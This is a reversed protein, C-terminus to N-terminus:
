FVPVYEFLLYSALASISPTLIWLVIVRGTTAPDFLEPAALAAPACVRQIQGGSLPDQGILRGMRLGLRTHRLLMALVAAVDASHAVLPHWEDPGDHKAWLADM